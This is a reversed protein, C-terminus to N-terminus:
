EGFDPLLSELEVRRVVDPMQDNGTTDDDKLIIWGNKEHWEPPRTESGGAEYWKGDTKKVIIKTKAPPNKKKGTRPSKKGGASGKNSGKKAM